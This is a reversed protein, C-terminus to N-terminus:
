RNRGLKKIDGWNDITISLVNKPDVTEVELFISHDSYGLDRIPQLAFPDYGNYGTWLYSRYVNTRGDRYRMARGPEAGSVLYPSSDRGDPRIVIFFYGHDKTILYDFESVDVVTPVLARQVADPEIAMQTKRVDSPPDLAFRSPYVRTEVLNVLFHDQSWKFNDDKIFFLDIAILKLPGIDEILSTLNFLAFYTYSYLNAANGTPRLVNLAQDTYFGWVTDQQPTFGDFLPLIPKFTPLEVNQDIFNGNAAVNMISPLPIIDGSPPCEGM